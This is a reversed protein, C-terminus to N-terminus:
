STGKESKRAIKKIKVPREDDENKTDKAAPIYFANRELANRDMSPYRKMAASLSTFVDLATNGTKKSSMINRLEDRTFLSDIADLDKASIDCLGFLSFILPLGRRDFTQSLLKKGTRKILLPRVKKDCAEILLQIATIGKYEIGALDELDAVMILAAREMKGGSTIVDIVFEGGSACDARIFERLM